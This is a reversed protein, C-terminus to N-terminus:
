ILEKLSAIENQLERIERRSNTLEKRYLANETTVVALTKAYAESMRDVRIMLENNARLLIQFETQPQEPGQVEEVPAETRSEGDIDDDVVVTSV